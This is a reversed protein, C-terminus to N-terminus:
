SRRILHDPHNPIRLKKDDIKEFYRYMNNKEWKGKDFM